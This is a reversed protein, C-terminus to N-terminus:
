IGNGIVVKTECFKIHSEITRIITKEDKGKVAEYLDVHREYHLDKQDEHYHHTEALFSRIQVLLTYYIDIIRSNNCQNILYWHFDRDVNFAEFWDNQDISQKLRELIYELERENEETLNKSAQILAPGELLLRIEQVEQADKKTFKNVYSGKQNKTIILKELELIKLSERLANRSIGYQSTLEIELIREGPVLEKKWISHAIEIAIAESLSQHNIRSTLM